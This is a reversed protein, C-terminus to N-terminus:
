PSECVTCLVGGCPRRPQRTVPSDGARRSRRCRGQPKMEPTRGCGGKVEAAGRREEGDGVNDQGESTHLSHGQAGSSSFFSFITVARGLGPLLTPPTCGSWLLVRCISSTRGCVI